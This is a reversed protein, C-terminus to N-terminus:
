LHPHPQCWCSTETTERCTPLIEETDAALMRQDFPRCGLGRLTLILRVDTDDDWNVDNPVEMRELQFGNRLIDFPEQVTRLDTFDVDVEDIELNSPRDLGEPLEYKYVFLEEGNRPAKVYQLPAHVPPASTSM